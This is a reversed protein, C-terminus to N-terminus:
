SDHIYPLKIWFTSGINVESELWIDGDLQEVIKKCIALGMGTGSYTSNNHLRKFLIFIKEFYAEEIGIGNDKIKLLIFDKKIEHQIIIKKMPSQNYKLGNEIINQFLRKILVRNSQIKPLLAFVVQTNIQSSSLIETKIQSIITNLDISEKEIERYQAGSYELIDTILDNMQYAGNKVYGFYENLNSYNKKQLDREILGSFSIISRVPTKLDHSAIYTFRELEKNLKLLQNNNEKLSNMFKLAREEYKLVELYFFIVIVSISIVGIIFFNNEDSDNHPIEFGLPYHELLYSTMLFLGINYLILTVRIWNKKPFIIATVIFIYFIYNLGDFEGMAMSAGCIIIPYLVNFYIISLQFHRFYSLVLMVFTFCWAVSNILIGVQDGSIVERSILYCQVSLLLLTLYNSLRIKIKEVNTEGTEVGWNTLQSGKKQLRKIIIHM